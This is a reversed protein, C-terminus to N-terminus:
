SNRHYFDKSIYRSTRQQLWTCPSDYHQMNLVFNLSNKYKIKGCIRFVYIYWTYGLLGCVVFPLIYGVIKTALPSPKSMLFFTHFYFLFSVAWHGIFICRTVCIVVHWHHRRHSKLPKVIHENKIKQLIIL